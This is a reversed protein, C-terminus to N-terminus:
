LLKKIQAVMIRQNKKASVVEKLPELLKILVQGCVEADSLARHEALNSITYYNALTQLKYDSVNKILHKSLSLTDIYKIIGKYGLRQLTEVLFGIDFTANHACVIIEGRLLGPFKNIFEHYVEEEKKGNTKLMDNTIRNIKTAQKSIEIECNILQGYSSVMHLDKFLCAGLEIIKDTESSLGSTEVDFALFSSELKEVTEISFCPVKKSVVVGRDPKTVTLVEGLQANKQYFDDKNNQEIIIPSTTSPDSSSLDRKKKFLNSIFSTISM